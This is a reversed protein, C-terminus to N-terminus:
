PLRSTRCRRKRSVPRSPSPILAKEKCRRLLIMVTGGTEGTVEGPDFSVYAKKTEEPM